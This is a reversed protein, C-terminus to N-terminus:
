LLNDLFAITEDVAKKGGSLLTTEIAYYGDYGSKKLLDIAEKIKTFGTGMPTDAFYTKDLTLCGGEFPENKIMMDKVHVHKVREAFTRIFGILDGGVQVINGFDAVIGLDRNTEEILRSVGEIGNFLYGQEEYIAKVGISDAYDYIQQVAKVGKKFFEEKYPIIKNPDRFECAITHHLYPSGLIKAVEAFGKARKIQEESDDGVLNIYVSFCPFTINKSDAYERIRKATETDPEAFEFRCFGELGSFGYEASLDLMDFYSEAGKLPSYFCIKKKM